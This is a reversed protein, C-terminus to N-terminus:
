YSINHSIKTVGDEFYPIIYSTSFCRDVGNEDQIITFIYYINSAAAMQAQERYYKHKISKNFPSSLFRQQFQKELSEAVKYLYYPQEVVGANNWSGAPVQRTENMNAFANALRHVEDHEHHVTRGLLPTPDENEARSKICSCMSLMRQINKHSVIYIKSESWLGYDIVDTDTRESYPIRYDPVEHLHQNRLRDYLYDWNIDADTINGRRHINTEDHLSFLTPFQEKVETISNLTWFM